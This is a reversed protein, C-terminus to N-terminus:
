DKLEESLSDLDPMSPVEEIGLDSEEVGTELNGVSELQEELERKKAAREEPTAVKFECVLKIPDGHTLTGNYEM